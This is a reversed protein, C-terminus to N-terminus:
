IRIRDGDRHRTRRRGRWVTVRGRGRVQWAGDGGVLATEEDIGLVTTADPARLAVIAALAEPIADYHPLIAVGPVVALGHEWAIPRLRPRGTVFSSGLVMAGASCGALVAGRAVAGVVATGVGSGALAAHLDAPHGGSLYVLDSEGIAQVWAPDDADARTRVLVAEVEAGLDLFHTRGMEAWRLFVAEGDRASATPLIAVRPRARGTAALLDRDVPALAPTFEGSGVLALTGTM